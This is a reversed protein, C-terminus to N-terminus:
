PALIFNAGKDRHCNKKNQKISGPNQPFLLYQIEYVDVILTERGGVLECARVCM